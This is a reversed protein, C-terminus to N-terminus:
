VCTGKIRLFLLTFFFNRDQMCWAHLIRYFQMFNETRSFLNRLIECLYTQKQVIKANIKASKCVWFHM